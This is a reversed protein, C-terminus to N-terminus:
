CDLRNRSNGCSEDSVLNVRFCNLLFLRIKFQISNRRFNQSPEKDGQNQSCHYNESFYLITAEGAKKYFLSLYMAHKLTNTELTSKIKENSLKNYYHMRM